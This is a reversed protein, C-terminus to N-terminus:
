HPVDKGVAMVAGTLTYDTADCPAAIANAAKVVSGIAVTVTAVYANADSANTILGSIPSAPTGPALNTIQGNQTITVTSSTGTTATGSGSGTTTWYAFAVGGMVMLGVAIATVILWRPRRRGTTPTPQGTPETTAM